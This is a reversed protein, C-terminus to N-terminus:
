SPKTEKNRASRMLDCKTTPTAIPGANRAPVLSNRFGKIPGLDDNPCSELQRCAQLWTIPSRTAPVPIALKPFSPVAIATGVDISTPSSRDSCRFLQAKADALQAQVDKRTRLNRGIKKM